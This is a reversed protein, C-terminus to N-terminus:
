KEWQAAKTPNSARCEECGIWEMGSKFGTQGHGYRWFTGSNIMLPHDEYLNGGPRELPKETKSSM